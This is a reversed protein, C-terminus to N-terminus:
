AQTLDDMNKKYLIYTLCQEIPLKVVEEFKMIDENALIYILSYFGWQGMIKDRNKQQEGSFTKRESPDVEEEDDEKSSFLTKYKIKMSNIKTQYSNFYKLCEYSNNIDIEKRECILKIAEYKRNKSILTETDCFDGFLVEIDENIEFQIGSIILNLSNGMLYSLLGDYKLEKLIEEDEDLIISLIMIIVDDNSTNPKINSLLETIEFYDGLKILKLPNDTRYLKYLKWLTKYYLLKKKM